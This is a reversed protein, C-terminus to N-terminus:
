MFKGLNMAPMRGKQMQSIMKKMMEFQKLLHNVEQVQSGSGKAIRRKRSANIISPNKREEPTMSYIIAEIRGIQKNALDEPLANGLKGFGPVMSLLSKLSGMKRVQRIQDVFDELDFKNQSLKKELKKAKEKDVSQEVREILSLMDGMGLIRSVFRDPFFPEINDFKEGTGILKIPKGTAYKVSLAAGGRTDGDMKTLVIGTVGVPDFTSAINVADQGTMGDLVLLVETPDVAGIISRIEEMMKEDIHLRGATDLLLYDFDGDQGKAVAKKAISVPDNDGEPFYFEMNTKGAVIKLQDIAAPRYVDLPVSLVRKGKKELMSGLKGCTTTKGSGQLGCLVFVTPKKSSKGLSSHEGGLMDILNDRVVKFFQQHPTLSKLVQEGMASEKVNAVFKKVVDFNVDADLLTFRLERLAEQVNEETIRGTGSLDRFIQSLKDSFSDLMILGPAEKQAGM